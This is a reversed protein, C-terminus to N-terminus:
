KNSPKSRPAFRLIGSRGEEDQWHIILDGFYFGFRTSHRLADLYTGERLMVTEACEQNLSKSAKVTIEGPVKTGRAYGLYRNCGASGRVRDKEFILTIDPLQSSAPDMTSGGLVWEAGILTALNLSGTRKRVVQEVLGDRELSWIRTALESPCCAADKAGHQLVELVIRGKEIRGSRVIIRDGIRVTALNVVAGEKRVVIAMYIDTASGGSDEKLFVVAQRSGDESLDGSLPLSDILEVRPRTAAGPVFPPGEYVGKSLTVPTTYIGTYTAKKLEYVSPADERAPAPEGKVTQVSTEGRVTGVWSMFVAISVAMSAMIRRSNATFMFTM